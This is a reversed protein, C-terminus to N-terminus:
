AVVLAMTAVVAALMLPLGAHDLWHALADAALCPTRTCRSAFLTAMKAETAPKSTVGSYLRAIKEM